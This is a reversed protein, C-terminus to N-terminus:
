VAARTVLKAFHPAQAAQLGIVTQGDVLDRPVCRAADAELGQMEASQAFIEALRLVTRCYGLRDHNMQAGIKRRRLTEVEAHVSKERGISGWYLTQDVQHGLSDDHYPAPFDAAKLFAEALNALKYLQSM